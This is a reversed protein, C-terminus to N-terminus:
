LSLNLFFAMFDVAERHALAAPSGPCAMTVALNQPVLFTNQLNIHPSSSTLNSFVVKARIDM